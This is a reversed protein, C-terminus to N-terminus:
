LILPELLPRGSLGTRDAGVAACITPVIDQIHPAATGLAAKSAGPVVLAWAEGTHCGTRGTGWGPSPIEGFRASRVGALPSVVRESWQVVLDPLQHECPGPYGLESRRFMRQIVRTGDGNRFTSLGEMIKDLLPDAEKPEVVGERERGRLNLRVYGADDNPMMFAQTRGWRVDRLELRAAIELALRDPIMRAIWSRIGTPVAARIKWLSSGPAARRETGPDRDTLVANLMAPLLHSRSNNPGMGSPSMVIVDAGNPLAQVIRGLAEDVAEYIDVLATALEPRSNLGLENSFRAVDYFRHGGLHAASLTAWVLDFPERQLLTEVLEAGRRPAAVLTEKLRLFSSAEPCGYVEEGVPPRGFERELERQLSSPVSRTRLVVRNKFQWGTVFVGQIARPARMEYPDVVLSRRGARGLREWVAEPSSLDDFFHVRQERASWLWPYYLGHDGLGAGTYLSYAAAGEFHTAPTELEYWVGRGKLAQLAPLRGASLFADLHTRSAGDFQLIAIM